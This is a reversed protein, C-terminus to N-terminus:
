VVEEKWKTRPYVRTSKDNVRIVKSPEPNVSTVVRTCMFHGFNRMNFAKFSNLDCWGKYRAYAEQVEICRTEPLNSNSEIAEQAWEIVSNGALLMKDQAEAAMQGGRSVKFKGSNKAINVQIRAVLMSMIKPAEAVLRDGVNDDPSEFKHDFPIVLMRRKIAHGDEKFKPPKNASFVMKTRNQFDYGNEGKREVRMKGGASLNKIVNLEAAGMEGGSSEESLNMLKGELGSPAFRNFSLQSLSISSTNEKGVLATLINILTSKGNSGEGTLITFLHDDYTPWLCYAMMDLVSEMLEDRSQMVQELWDLFYESSEGAVYDYPLVYQFGFSTSHPVLQGTVLNLVGNRCNVRGYTSKTFLDPQKVEEFAGITTVTKMFEMRHAERIPDSPNVKDQMWAKVFRAEMSEYHTGNHVFLHDEGQTVHSKERKFVRTLDGYHPHIPQGNKNLVWFGVDETAVFEKGKLALPTTIRNFHPCKECGGAWNSSVTTCKRAGYRTGAEWKQTFDQATLSASNTASDWIAATIEQATMPKGQYELTAAPDQVGMLSILDFMQQEHVEDPSAMAWNVFRCEKVMEALDPKPFSRRVEDPSINQKGITDLLSIAKLDFDLIDATNQLLECKKILMVTPEEKSKPKHNETGPMRLVRGADLIVVDAEGPLGVDKLAKTILHCVENYHPKLEKLFTTSRIPTKLYLIVHIGNGTCNLILSKPDVNLVKAVVPLYDRARSVDCHDIDFALIDQTDYTSNDRSPLPRGLPMHHAVTFYVNVLNRADKNSLQALIGAYNDFLVKTSSVTFGTPFGLPHIFGKGDPNKLVIQISM